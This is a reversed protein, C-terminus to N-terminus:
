VEEACGPREALAKAYFKPRVVLFGVMLMLGTVAWSLSYCAYLSQITGLAAFVTNIWLIRLGCTGLMTICMTATSHGMSRLASSFVAVIGVLGYGSGVMLMRILGQEIVEPSDTYIGLLWPGAAYGALGVVTPVVIAYLLCWRIVRDVRKTKGAGLNQGTFTLAASGFANAAANVFTGLSAAAGNGAVVIQGMSNIAAQVTVNAVDYMCGQVGSPLGIRVIEKLADWELRLKKLDLHIVGTERVLCWLVLVASVYKSLITAAAVGAVDWQFCVVFIVNLVVNIVGSLTLFYMPRKTDGQARLLASSFNYVLEGPMGLFYVRLYLTSLGILEEPSGMLRLLAPAFCEGVVVLSGGFILGMAVATHAVGSIRSRDGSGLARAVVVSVGVGMGVFLDILLNILATTSSVAAQSADGAFKGVIVVDAANFLRQIMNALMFPVAFRLIKGALPGNIMDIEYRKAASM